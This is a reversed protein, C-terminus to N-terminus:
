VVHVERDKRFTPPLEFPTNKKTIFKKYNFLNKRYRLKEEINLGIISDNNSLNLFKVDFTYKQIKKYCKPTPTDIILLCPLFSTFFLGAYM